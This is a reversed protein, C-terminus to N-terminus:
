SRAERWVTEAVTVAPTLQQPHKQRTYLKHKELNIIILKYKYMPMDVSVKDMKIRM